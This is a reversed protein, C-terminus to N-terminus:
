IILWDAPRELVQGEMAQQRLTEVHRAWLDLDYGFPIEVLDYLRLVGRTIDEVSVLQFEDRTKWRVEGDIRWPSQPKRRRMSFVAGPQWGGRRDIHEFSSKSMEILFAWTPQDRSVVAVYWKRRPRQHYCRRCQWRRPSGSGACLAPGNDYHTDLSVSSSGVVTMERIPSVLKVLRLM